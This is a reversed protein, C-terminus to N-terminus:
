NLPVCPRGTVGGGSYRAVAATPDTAGVSTTVRLAASTTGAPLRAAVQTDSLVQIPSVVVGNAYVGYTTKLASGEILLTVGAPEPDACSEVRSVGTLIPGTSSLKLRTSSTTASAGGPTRVILDGGPTNAPFVAGLRTDSIAAFTVAARGALTVESTKALHLGTAMVQVGGATSMPGSTFTAAWEGGGALRVSTV